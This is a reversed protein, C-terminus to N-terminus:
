YITKLRVRDKRLKRLARAETYNVGQRTIGLEKGTEELTCDKIYRMRIVKEQKSSLTKLIEDIFAKREKNLIIDEQDAKYTVQPVSYYPLYELDVEKQITRPKQMLKAFEVNNELSDAFEPPFLEDATCNFYNTLKDLTRKSHGHERPMWRFNVIKHLTVKTIGIKESLTDLTLNNDQMYNYIGAHKAKTKFAINFSKM